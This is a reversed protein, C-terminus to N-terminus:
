LQRVLYKMANQGIDVRLVNPLDGAASGQSVEEVTVTQEELFKIKAVENTAGYEGTSGSLALVVYSSGRLM